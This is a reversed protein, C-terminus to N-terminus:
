KNTTSWWISMVNENYGWRYIIKGYHGM